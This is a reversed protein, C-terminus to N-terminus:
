RGGIPGEVVQVDIAISVDDGIVLGGADLPRNLRIGFDRRSIKTRAAFSAVEVDWLDPGGGTQEVALEVPRTVGHLTLDGAVHWRHRPLPSAPQVRTGRFAITPYAAVDFFDASRLHADRKKIGTDVSAADIQVQVLADQPREEDFRITGRFGGFRGHVTAVMMHKISFGITSHVPDITWLTGTDAATEARQLTQTEM